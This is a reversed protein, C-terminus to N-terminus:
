PEITDNPRPSKKGEGMKLAVGLLGGMMERSFKLGENQLQSFSAQTCQSAEHINSAINNLEDGVTSNGTRHFSGALGSLQWYADRLLTVAENHTDVLNSTDDPM